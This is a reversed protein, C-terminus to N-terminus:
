TNGPSRKKVLLGRARFARLRATFGAQVIDTRSCPMSRTRSPLAALVTEHPLSTGCPRELDAPGKRSFEKTPM